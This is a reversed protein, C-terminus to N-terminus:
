CVVKRVLITMILGNPRLTFHLVGLDILSDPFYTVIDRVRITFHYYGDSVGSLQTEIKSGESYEFAKKIKNELDAKIKSTATWADKFGQETTM